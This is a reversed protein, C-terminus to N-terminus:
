EPDSTQSVALCLDAGNPLGGPRSIVWRDAQRDYIVVADTWVQNGGCDPQNAWFTTTAIPGAVRNGTKDFVALAVNVVQVYHNPGIAGSDDSAEESLSCGGGTLEAKSIGEFDLITPPLRAETTSAASDAAASLHDDKQAAAIRLPFASHRGDNHNGAATAGSNRRDADVIGVWVGSALDAESANNERGSTEKLDDANRIKFRCEGSESHNQPCSRAKPRRQCRYIV